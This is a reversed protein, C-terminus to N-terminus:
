VGAASVSRRVPKASIAAAGAASVQARGSWNVKSCPPPKM